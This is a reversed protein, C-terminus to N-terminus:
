EKYQWTLKERITNQLIALGYLAATECRLINIDFHVPIIRHSQLMEMESPSIGGESGVFLGALPVDKQAAIVATMSQSAVCREYLAFAIKDGSHTQWLALAEELTVPGDCVTEVPSGSQQRAEKIIRDFRDGRWKDPDAYVAQSYEGIVPIIRAVGCETAQRIICDMKQPKAIFQFLWYDTTSKVEDVEAAATGRTITDHADSCDCLQLVLMRNAEDIRCATMNQLSGDAFRVAVMDGVKLRLVQKFYRYDKGTIQLLGHQDVFSPSIYQRM